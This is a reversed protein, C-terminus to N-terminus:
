GPDSELASRDPRLSVADSGARRTEEAERRRVFDFRSALFDQQEDHMEEPLTRFWRRRDPLGGPKPPGGIVEARFALGVPSDLGHNYHSPYEIYGLLEGPEVHLGLEHEAVRRVADVAPEGFRVTGGPLHWLGQCPPIDRLSLLVGLPPTAIVVEVTLRPVQSFIAEFEEQPLPPRLPPPQNM